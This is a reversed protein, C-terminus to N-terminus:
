FSYVLFNQTDGPVIFTKVAGDTSILKAEINSLLSNTNIYFNLYACNLCAAAYVVGTISILCITILQKIVSKLQM